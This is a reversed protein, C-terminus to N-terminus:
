EGTRENPYSSRWSRCRSAALRRGARVAALAIYGNTPSFETNASRIIRYKQPDAPDRIPMNAATNATNRCKGTRQHRRLFTYQRQGTRPTDLKGGTKGSRPLAGSICFVSRLRM